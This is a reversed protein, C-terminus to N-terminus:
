KLEDLQKKLKEAEEFEEKISLEEIKSEIREKKLKVMAEQKILPYYQCLFLYDSENYFGFTHYLEFIHNARNTYGFDLEELAIDWLQFDPITDYSFSDGCKTFSVCFFHGDETKIASYNQEDINVTKTYEIVKGELLNPNYIMKVKSVKSEIKELKKILLKVEEKKM